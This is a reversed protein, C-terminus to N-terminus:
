ALKMSIHGLRTDRNRLKLYKMEDETFFLERNSAKQQLTSICNLLQELWESIWKSKSSSSSIPKKKITM